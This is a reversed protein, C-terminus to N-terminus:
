RTRSLLIGQRRPGRLRVAREFSAEDGSILMLLQGTRAEPTGGSVPSRLLQSGHHELETAIRESDAPDVTSTDIVLLDSRGASALGDAGLVVDELQEGTLVSVIVVSCESAVARASDCRTFGQWDTPPRRQPNNDYGHVAFGRHLLREVM